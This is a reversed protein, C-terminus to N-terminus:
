PAPDSRPLPDPHLYLYHLVLATVVGYGLHPILDSIWGVVGWTRPDTVRLAIMPGNTGILAGATAVVAGVLWGPRWGLSYALGLIVGIGIGATYGTLAGLGSMRNAPTDGTGPVTLHVLKALAEVTREPTTSTPRGRVAMYLYTIVNLTTTGAAGAAAGAALGPWVRAMHRTTM